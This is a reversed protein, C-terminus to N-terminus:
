RSRCMASRTRPVPSTVVSRSRGHPGTPLSPPLSPPLPANDTYGNLEQDAWERLLANDLKAALLKAMRLVDTLPRDSSTAAHEIDQLLGM